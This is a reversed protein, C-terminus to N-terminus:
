LLVIMSNRHTQAFEIVLQELSEWLRSSLDREIYLLGLSDLRQQTMTSRLYTKVRHLSSFSREVTATSTGLTLAICLCENLIPFAAKVPETHELLNHLGSSGQLEEDPIPNRTLYNKFFIVENKLNDLRPLCKSYHQLFPEMKTVSLFSTSKPSLADVGKMLLLNANSFRENMESLIVDITPFYM